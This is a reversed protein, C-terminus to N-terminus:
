LDVMHVVVLVINGHKTFRNHDSQHVGHMARLNGPTEHTFLGLHGAATNCSLNHAPDLKDLNLGCALKRAKLM